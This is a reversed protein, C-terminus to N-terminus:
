FGCDEGGNALHFLGGAGTPHSPKKKQEHLPFIMAAKSQVGIAKSSDFMELDSTKSRNIYNVPHYENKMVISLNQKPKKKKKKQRMYAIIFM